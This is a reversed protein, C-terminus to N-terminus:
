RNLKRVPLETDEMLLRSLLLLHQTKLQRDYYSVTQVTDHLALKQYTKKKEKLKRFCFLCFVSHNEAHALSSPQAKM